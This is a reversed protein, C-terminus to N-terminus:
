LTGDAENCTRVSLSSATSINSSFYRILICVCCVPIAVQGLGSHTNSSGSSVTWVAFQHWDWIKHCRHVYSHEVSNQQSHSIKQVCRHSRNPEGGVGWGTRFTNAWKGTMKIQESPHRSCLFTLGHVLQEPLEERPKLTTTKKKNQKTLFFFVSPSIFAWKRM